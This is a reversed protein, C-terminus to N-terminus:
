LIQLEAKRLENSIRLYEDSSVTQFDQPHTWAWISLTAASDSIGTVRLLPEPTRLVRADDSLAAQIVGMALELDEERVKLILELRRRKSLSYNVIKSGWVRSNPMIVRVGDTTTMQMNVITLEEVVGQATEVEILHGARFPRYILLLLGAAFNSLTDRLAFGLILGTVGLGAVISIVEVGLNALAALATAAAITLAISRLFFSKLLLDDRIRSRNLVATLWRKSLRSVLIGILIIAVAALWRIAHEVMYAKLIDIQNM